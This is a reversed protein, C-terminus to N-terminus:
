ANAEPSMGMEAEEYLEEYHSREILWWFALISFQMFGAAILGHLSGLAIAIGYAHAYGITYMPNSFWRYPGEEAHEIDDDPAFFDYWYYGDGITRHAWHKIGWGVAILTAGLAWFVWQPLGVDITNRTILALVVISVGYNNMIVSTPQKFRRFGERTGWRQTFWESTKQAWLAGGVFGVYTLTSVVLFASAAWHLDFWVLTGWISALLLYTLGLRFKM